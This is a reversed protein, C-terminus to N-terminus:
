ESFLVGPAEVFPLRFLEGKTSAVVFACETPNRKRLTVSKWVATIDKVAHRRAAQHDPFEAGHRDHVIVPGLVLHFYYRLM